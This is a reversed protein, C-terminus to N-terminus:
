GLGWAGFAAPMVDPCTWSGHEDMVLRVGDVGFGDLALRRCDGESLGAAGYAARDPTATWQRWRPGLLRWDLLYVLDAMDASLLGDGVPAWGAYRLLVLAHDARDMDAAQSPKLKALPWRAHSQTTHAKAEIVVRVGERRLAFDAPGAESFRAGKGRHNGPPQQKSAVWGGPLEGLYSGM